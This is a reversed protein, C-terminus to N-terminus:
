FRTKDPKAKGDSTSPLLWIASAALADAEADNQAQATFVGPM